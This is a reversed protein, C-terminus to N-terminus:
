RNVATFERIERERERELDKRKIVLVGQKVEFTLLGDV